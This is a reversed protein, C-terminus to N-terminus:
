VEKKTSVLSNYGSEISDFERMWYTERQSMFERKHDDLRMEEPFTIEEVISFEWDTARSTSIAQHFKSSGGQFFHQYWRLTFVQSTKGIYVMGTIKNKIKYIVPQNKNYDDVFFTRKEEKHKDYCESSCFSPGKNQENLDNYKDIIRFQSECRECKQIDFLRKNCGLKEIKLIFDHSDLDKKLVRLPFQISYEDDILKRAEKKDKAEVKGCFIPPWVWNSTFIGCEDDAQNESTRGRIQYFFEM